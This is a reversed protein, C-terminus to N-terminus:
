SLLERELLQQNAGHRGRPHAVEAERPHLQATQCLPAHGHGRRQQGDDHVDHQLRQEVRVLTQDADHGAELCEGGDAEQLGELDEHGDDKDAVRAM